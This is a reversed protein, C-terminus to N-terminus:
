RAGGIMAVTGAALLLIGALQTLDVARRLRGFKAVAIRSLAVVHEAQDGRTLDDRLQAPTLTAWHPFGVSRDGLDPRVARLLVGAALVLLLVGAGGLLLAAVPLHRSSAVAWVGALLVGVFALLLAVKNDTRAMEAKVDAWAADLSTSV